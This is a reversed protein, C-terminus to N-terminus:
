RKLMGAACMWEYCDRLTEDLTSPQYGLERIARSSDSYVNLCLTFAAHPDLTPPRGIIRSIWYEGYGYAMFLPTPLRWKPPPRNLIKAVHIMVNLWQEDPGGLIYHGGRVGHHFAAVHAAAVKRCHCVSGGGPPAFPLPLGREIELFMKSWTVKDYAGFIASPHLFVADLGAKVGVEVEIDALRKSNIYADKSHNNPPATEDFHHKSSFDFTLVTSTHLFRGVKKELAVTVVNRTGIQNIGYRSDEKGHAVPGVSGAVHFVADVAPPMGRRLSEIDMIDGPAYIVKKCKKLESLDSSPRCLAIIEWGAKDLEQILNTGVFGTAGTVFARM